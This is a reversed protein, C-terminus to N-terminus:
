QSCRVPPLGMASIPAAGGPDAVRGALVLRPADKGDLRDFAVLFGDLAHESAEQLEAAARGRRQHEVVGLPQRREVVDLEQAIHAPMERDVAHQGHIRHLKAELAVLLQGEDFEVVHQQLGVIEDLQGLAVAAVQLHAARVLPAVDDRADIEAAAHARVLEIGQGARQEGGGRAGLHALGRCARDPEIGVHKGDVVVPLEPAVGLVGVDRAEELQERNQRKASIALSAASM